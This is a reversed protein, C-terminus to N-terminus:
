IEACILQIGSWLGLHVACDFGENPGNILARGAGPEQDEVLGAIHNCGMLQFERLDIRLRPLQEEFEM